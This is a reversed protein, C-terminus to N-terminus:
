GITFREFNHDRCGEPYVLVEDSLPIDVTIPQPVGGSMATTDVERSEVGSEVVLLNIKDGYGLDTEFYLVGDEYVLSEKDIDFTYGACVVASKSEGTSYATETMYVRYIWGGLFIALFVFVALLFITLSIKRSKEAM